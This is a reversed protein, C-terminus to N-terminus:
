GPLISIPSCDCLSSVLSATSILTSDSNSSYSLEEEPWLAWNGTSVQQRELAIHGHGTAWSHAVIEASSPSCGKGVSFM